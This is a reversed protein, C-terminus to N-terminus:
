SEKKMKMASKKEDDSMWIEIKRKGALVIIKRPDIEIIKQGSVTDGVKFPDGHVIVISVGKPDYIIGEIQFGSTLTQSVQNQSVPVFPDRRGGSDYRIEESFSFWPNSFLFSFMMLAVWGTSPIKSARM